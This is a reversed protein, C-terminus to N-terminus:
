WPTRSDHTDGSSSPRLMERQRRMVYAAVDEQHAAFRRRGEEDDPTLFHAGFRYHLGIAQRYRLLAEFRLPSGSEVLAFGVEIREGDPIPLDSAARFALGETSLDLLDATASVGAWKVSVSVTEASHPEVRFVCRRNFVRWLSPDLSRFFGQPDAFRFGYRLADGAPRCDVPVVDVQLTEALWTMRFLAGLRRGLPIAAGAEAAFDVSAGYATVDVLSGKPAGAPETLEVEISHGEDPAVRYSSRREPTFPQSM